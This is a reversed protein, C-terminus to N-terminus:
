YIHGTLRDPRSPNLHFKPRSLVARYEQVIAENLVPIIPGDLALNIISGPVSEWKLVASILVHTDIVAYYKM